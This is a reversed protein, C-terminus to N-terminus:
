KTFCSQGETNLTGTTEETGPLHTVQWRHFKCVLDAARVVYPMLEGDHVCWNFTLHGVISRSDTQITLNWEKPDEDGIRLRNLFDELSTNFAKYKAQDNTLSRELLISGTFQGRLTNIQYSGYAQSDSSSSKELGGDCIINVQMRETYDGVYRAGSAYFGNDCAMMETVISIARTVDGGYTDAFNIMGEARDQMTSIDCQIDDTKDALSLQVYDEVDERFDKSTPLQSLRIYKDSQEEQHDEPEYEPPGDYIFKAKAKTMPM